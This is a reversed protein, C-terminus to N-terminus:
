RIRRWGRNPHTSFLFVSVYGDREEMFVIHKHQTMGSRIIIGRRLSAFLIYFYDVEYGHPLRDIRRRISSPLYELYVERSANRYAYFIEEKKNAPVVIEAYFSGFESRGINTLIINECRSINFFEFLQSELSKGILNYSYIVAIAIILFVAVTMYLVIKKGM